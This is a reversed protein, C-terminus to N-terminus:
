RASSCSRVSIGTTLLISRDADSGSRTAPSSTSAIPKLCSSIRNTEAFISVFFVLCGIPQVFCNWIGHSQAEVIGTLRLTGATMLVGVVALSMALEYSIMQATSRIGGLFSYTNNSAWGALIIGYVSLSAIAFLFLIGMNVDALILNVDRGFIPLSFGFPIVAFTIWATFLAVIPATVFLIRHARAPMFDEKFFLKVVDAFPQIVGYPGVRNPGTRGQIWASVKREYYVMVPITSPLVAFVIFVKIVHELLDANIM